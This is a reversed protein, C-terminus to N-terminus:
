SAALSQQPGSEYPTGADPVRPLTVTFTSGRGVVSHVRLDGGLSNVLALASPLGLGTGGDVVDSRHARYYPQFIRELDEEAIGGGGDHVAIVVRQDDETLQVVIDEDSYKVANDLLNILIRLLTHRQIHATISRDGAITVREYVDGPLVVAVADLVVEDLEIEEAAVVALRPTEAHALDALEGLMDAVQDSATAIHDLLPCPEDVSEQLLATYGVLATVPTRFDHVFTRLFRQRSEEELRAPTIDRVVKVFGQDVRGSSVATIMVHAWFETGDARVRWGTDQVFGEQRATELLRQPIGRRRDADRYFTEFSRGIIDAAPYGKMQEAADSWGIVTGTDDLRVIAALAQPELFQQSTNVDHTM